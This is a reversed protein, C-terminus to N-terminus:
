GLSGQDALAKGVEKLRAPRLQNITEKVSQPTTKDYRNKLYSDVDLQKYDATADKVEKALRKELQRLVFIVDLEHGSEVKDYKLWELTKRGGDSYYVAVFPTPAVETQDPVVIRTTQYSLPHKPMTAVYDLLPVKATGEQQVAHYYAKFLYPLRYQEGLDEAKALNLEQAAALMEKSAQSVTSATRLYDTDALYATYISYHHDILDAKPDACATMGAVLLASILVTYLKNM